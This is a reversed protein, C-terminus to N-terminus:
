PVHPHCLRWITVNFLFCGTEGNHDISRGCSNRCPEQGSARSFQRANKKTKNKQFLYAACSRVHLAGALSFINEWPVNRLGRASSLINFRCCIMFLHKTYPGSQQNLLGSDVYRRRSAPSPVKSLVKSLVVSFGVHARDIANLRWTYTNFLATYHTTDHVRNHHLM